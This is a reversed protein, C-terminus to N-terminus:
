WQYEVTAVYAWDSLNNGTIMYPGDTFFKLNILSTFTFGKVTLSPGFYADLTEALATDQATTEAVVTTTKDDVLKEIAEPYISNDENIKAFRIEVGKKELQLWPFTNNWHEREPMVVNDGKKLNLGQA